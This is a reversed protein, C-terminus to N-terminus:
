GSNGFGPAGEGLTDLIADGLEEAATEPALKKSGAAVNTDHKDKRTSVIEYFDGDYEISTVRAGKEFMAVNRFGVEKLHERFQSTALGLDVDTVNGSVDRLLQLVITGIESASTSLPLKTVPPRGVGGYPTRM